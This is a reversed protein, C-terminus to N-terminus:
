RYGGFRGDTGKHEALLEATLASWSADLKVIEEVNPRAMVHNAIEEARNYAEPSFDGSLSYLDRILRHSTM